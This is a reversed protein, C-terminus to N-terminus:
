QDDAGEKAADEALATRTAKEEKRGRTTYYALVISGLAIWNDWSGDPIKITDTAIAGQVAVELLAITRLAGRMRFALVDVADFFSNITNKM